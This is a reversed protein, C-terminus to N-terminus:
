PRAKLLEPNEYINGVININSFDGNEPDGMIHTSCEYGGINSWQFEYGWASLEIEVVFVGSKRGERLRVIDGEYIEKGNKDHLGTYRVLVYKGPFLSEHTIGTLSHRLLEGSLSISLDDLRGAYAEYTPKFWSKNETDWVRFKSERM